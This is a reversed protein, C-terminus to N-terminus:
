LVQIKQIIVTSGNVTGTENAVASYNNYINSSCSYSLGANIVFPEYLRADASQRETISYKSLIGEDEDDGPVNQPEPEDETLWM